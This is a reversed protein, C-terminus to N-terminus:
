HYAPLSSYGSAAGGFKCRGQQYFSCVRAGGGGGGQGHQVRGFM